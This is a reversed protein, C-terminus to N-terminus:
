DREGCFNYAPFVASTSDDFYPLADCPVNIDHSLKIKNEGSGVVKAEPSAEVVVYYENGAAINYPIVYQGSVSVSGEKGLMVNHFSDFEQKVVKASGTKDLSVDHFVDFEHKIDTGDRDVALYIRVKLPESKMGGDNKLHATVTVFDGRFINIGPVPGAVEVSSIVWKSGKGSGEVSFSMMPVALFLAMMATIMGWKYVKNNRKKKDNMMDGRAM